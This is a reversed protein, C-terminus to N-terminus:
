SKKAADYLPVVKPLNSEIDKIRTSHSPHTSLFQPPSGGGGSVQSMKKWVSVAARPDYGARAMLELGIVDSESEQERSHPLGFTVESVMGALKVAGEGAGVAAGLVGLAIQQGYARSVRERGHERLAHAIEHGMVAAIEDDNMNLKKIIGTYFMIKGGPMCYANLEDKSQVNVEWAWSPADKRFASTQPILRSAIARVRTVQTQDTNLAGAKTAKDLEEKYALTASENIQKESVVSLMRQKREVGVAGGETTRVTQCGVVTALLVGLVAILKIKGV